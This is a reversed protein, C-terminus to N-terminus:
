ESEMSMLCVHGSRRAYFEGLSKSINRHSPPLIFLIYGAELLGMWARATAGTAMKEWIM